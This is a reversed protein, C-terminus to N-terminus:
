PVRFRNSAVDVQRPESGSRYWRRPRHASLALRGQERAHKLVMAVDDSTDRRGKKLLSELGEQNLLVNNPHLALHPMEKRHLFELRSFAIDRAARVIALPDKGLGKRMAVMLPCLAAEMIVNLEGGVSTVGFYKQMFPNPSEQLAFLETTAQASMSAILSTVSAGSNSKRLDRRWAASAAGEAADRGLGQGEGVGGGPRQAERGRRREAAGVCRGRGPRPPFGRARRGEGESRHRAETRGEAEEEEVVAELTSRQRRHQRLQGRRGAQLARSVPPMAAPAEKTVEELEPPDVYDAPVYGMDGKRPCAQAVHHARGRRRDALLVDGEDHGRPAGPLADGAGRAPFEGHLKLRQLASSFKALSM